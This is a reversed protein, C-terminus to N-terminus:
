LVVGSYYRVDSKVTPGVALLRSLWAVMPRLQKDFQWPSNIIVMGCSTLGNESDDNISSGGEKVSLEAILINLAALQKLDRYFNEVVSREKIPYWIAYIGIPFRSLAVQMAAIIQQWEDKEEFAPDILILGRGKKPPLFAKMGQYGDMCHVAVQKDRRFERKLELVDEPHKEVLIM